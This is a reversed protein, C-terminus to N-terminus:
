PLGDININIQIEHPVKKVDISRLNDTLANKLGYHFYKGPPVDRLIIKKPTCLLIRSHLPLVHLESISKVTKLIKLLSDTAQHTINYQCVWINIRRSFTKRANVAEYSYSETEMEHVHYEHCDDVEITSYDENSAPYMVDNVKEEISHEETCTTNSMKRLRRNQQSKSLSRFAKWQSM